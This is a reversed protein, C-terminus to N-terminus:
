NSKQILLSRAIHSSKSNLLFYIAYITAQWFHLDTNHFSFHHFCLKFLHYVPVSPWCLAKVNLGWGLHFWNTNTDYNHWCDLFFVFFCSVQVDGCNEWGFNSRPQLQFLLLRGCIQSFYSFHSYLGKASTLAVSPWEWTWQKRKMVTKSSPIFSGFILFLPPVSRLIIIAAAFSLWMLLDFVSLWLFRVSPNKGGMKRTDTIGMAFMGDHYTSFVVVLICVFGSIKSHCSPISM